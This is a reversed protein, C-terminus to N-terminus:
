LIQYKDNLNSIIKLVILSYRFTNSIHQYKILWLIILILM